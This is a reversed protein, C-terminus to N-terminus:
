VPALNEKRVKKISGDDLEIECRDGLDELVTVRQGNLSATTKLGLLQVMAGVKFTQASRALTSDMTPARDNARKGDKGDKTRPSHNPGDGAGSDPFSVPQSSRRNDAATALLRVNESRVKKISGDSLRVEYRGKERDIMVIEAHQGNFTTASKLGIIEVIAGPEPLLGGGHDPTSAVSKEPGDAEEETALRAASASASSTPGGVKKPSSSPGGGSSPPEVPVLNEPKVRFLQGSDLSRVEFRSGDEHIEVIRGLCGNLETHNRLRCIVICTGIDLSSGVAFPLLHEAGKIKITEFQESRGGSIVVEFKERDGKVKLVTAVQGNHSSLKGKMGLIVVRQGESLGHGAGVGKAGGQTEAGPATQRPSVEANELAATDVEQSYLRSVLQLLAGRHKRSTLLDPESSLLDDVLRIVEEPSSVEDSAPLPKHRVEVEGSSSEVELGVGPPDYRLLFKKLKM